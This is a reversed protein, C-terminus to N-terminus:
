RLTCGLYIQASVLWYGAQSFPRGPSHLGTRHRGYAPGPVGSRRVGPRAVDRRCQPTM